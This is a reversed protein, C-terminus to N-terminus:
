LYICHNLKCGGDLVGGSTLDIKAVSSSNLVTCTCTPLSARLWWLNKNFDCHCWAGQHCLSRTVVVSSSLIECSSCKWYATLFFFSYFGYFPRASWKTHPGKIGSISNFIENQTHTNKKKIKFWYQVETEIWSVLLHEPLWRPQQIWGFCRLLRARPVPPVLACLLSCVSM